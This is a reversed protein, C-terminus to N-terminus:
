IFILYIIKQNFKLAIIKTQEYTKSPTIEAIKGTLPTYGGEM